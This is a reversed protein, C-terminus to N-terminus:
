AYAPKYFIGNLFAHIMGICFRHRSYLFGPRSGLHFLQGMLLYLM